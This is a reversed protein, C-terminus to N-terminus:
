QIVVQTTYIAVPDTAKRGRPVWTITIAAQNTAPTFTASGLGSNLRSNQVNTQWAAYDGPQAASNKTWLEAVLDDALLAATTRDEANTSNSTSVAQMLVLGLVGVSFVVIAILVELLLFGSQTRSYKSM